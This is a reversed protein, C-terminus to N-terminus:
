GSTVNVVSPWQLSQESLYLAQHRAHRQVNRVLQYLLVIQCFMLNTSFKFRAIVYRPLMDVVTCGDLDLYGARICHAHMLDMRYGVTMQNSCKRCVVHKIASTDSENTKRINTADATEKCRNCKISISLSILELLEIGYLELNPLSMLIGKEPGSPLNRQTGELHDEGSINDDESDFSSSEETSEDDFDGHHSWEPPRPIVIVHSKDGLPKQTNKNSVEKLTADISSSPVDGTESEKSLHDEITEAAMLHMNQSLRNIMAFLTVQPNQTAYKKFSERLARVEPGETGFIEMKCPELNYLSPVTLKITGISQMYAPLDQRRRPEIPITYSLGDSSKTFQPLRGLRAELQRIDADRRAKAQSLQESTYSPKPVHVDVRKPYILLETPQAQSFQSDVEKSADGYKNQYAVIKITEAKPASLLTELDRDLAKFVQLLTGKPSRRLIDNFGTEINLQYGRGMDQNTVRLSPSGNPYEVPVHLLCDLASLEFPFDPDSPALKFALDVSGDENSTEKPM